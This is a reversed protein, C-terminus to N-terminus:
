DDRKYTGNSDIFKKFAAMAEPIDRRAFFDQVNQPVHVGTEVRTGYEGVTTDATLQYLQWFGEQAEIDNKFSPDLKWEVRSFEPYFWHQVRTTFSTFWFKIHFETLEGNAPKEIATAGVLRPLYTAQKTTDRILEFVRAKPQKMIVVAKIYGALAKDPSSTDKEKLLAQGDKELQARFEPTVSKLYTAGETDGKGPLTLTIPSAGVGTGRPTPRLGAIALSSALTVTAAAVLSTRMCLNYHLAPATQLRGGRVDFPLPAAGIAAPLPAEISVSWWVTTAPERAPGVITVSFRRSASVEGLESDGKGRLVPHGSRAKEESACGRRM